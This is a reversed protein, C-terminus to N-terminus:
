VSARLVRLARLTVWKNPTKPKGYSQWTKGTYNYEMLWRGQENQKERIFRMTNALRKDKALGLGALAEAIQLIDTVYFVPFGFKWWNGSPNAAMGNPYNATVPDVTFFFDVGQQIARKILPTRQKVPLKGFALLVKCGGWACPLKNNAGCAFNPGCKYAYYRVSAHKDKMPSVGEGTTSRAMWEYASTLRPDDCGLEMLSWLLNGQLCDITGSPSANTMASFQGGETLAHDLLYNCATKIRKDERIHAGLQALLILAWVTSKYKPGYGTGPKAWYGEEQMRALVKAIPGEKHAKRRAARLEVDDNGLGMLDRLALYRVGPTDRELLWNLSDGRLQDQWGM